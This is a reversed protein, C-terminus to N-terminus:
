RRVLEYQTTVFFRPMPRGNPRTAHRTEKRRIIGADVLPAVLEDLARCNKAKRGHMSRYVSFLADRDILPYAPHFLPLVLAALADLKSPAPAPASPAECDVPSSSCRSSSSSGAPVFSAGLGWLAVSYDFADLDSSLSAADCRATM